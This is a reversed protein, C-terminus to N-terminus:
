PGFVSPADDQVFIISALHSLLGNDMIYSPIFIDLDCALLNLHRYFFHQIPSPINPTLSLTIVKTSVSSPLIVALPSPPPPNGRPVPASSVALAAESLIALCDQSEPVADVHVSEVMPEIALQVPELVPDVVLQVHEVVPELVPDVALQDSLPNQVNFLNAAMDADQVGNASHEDYAQLDGVM